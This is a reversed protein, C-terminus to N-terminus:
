ELDKAHMLTRDTTPLEAPSVPVVVPPAAGEEKPEVVAVPKPAPAPGVIDKLRVVEGDM